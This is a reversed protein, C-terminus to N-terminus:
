GEFRISRAVRGHPGTAVDRDERAFTTAVLVLVDDALVARAFVGTGGDRPTVVEFDLGPAGDVVTLRSVVITGGINTAAGHAVARLVEAETASDPPAAKSVAVVVDVDNVASHYMDVTLRTGPLPETRHEPRRPMDFRVGNGATVTVWLARNAASLTNPDAERACAGVASVAVVLM